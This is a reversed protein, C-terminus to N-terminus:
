AGLELSRMGNEIEGLMETELETLMEGMELEGVEGEKLGAFVDVEDFLGPM